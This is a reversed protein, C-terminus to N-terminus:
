IEFSSVLRISIKVCNETQDMHLHKRMYRGIYPLSDGSYHIIM